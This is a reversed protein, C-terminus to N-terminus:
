KRYEFYINLLDIPVKLLDFFTIKSSGKDHWKKLPIELIAEKCFDTGKLKNTRLLLEVDFLWKSVFPEKFIDKALKTEIVKAGCQTDYIPMKLIFTHVVTALFRGSIHRIQSREISSNLKKIRSGVIFKATNSTFGTLRLIEQLSTSLDADLYALYDYKKNDLRLVAHRIAEAKGLNKELNFVSVNPFSTQLSNLLSITNDSSGDNVFCLDIEQHSKLFTNFDETQFRFEENYCPIIVCTKQM